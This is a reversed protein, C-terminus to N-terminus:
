QLLLSPFYDNNFSWLLSRRTVEAERFANCLGKETVFEYQVALLMVLKNMNHFVYVLMKLREPEIIQNM